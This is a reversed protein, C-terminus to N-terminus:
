LDAITLTESLPGPQFIFSLVKRRDGMGCFCNVMMMMMMMMMMIMIMKLHMAFM